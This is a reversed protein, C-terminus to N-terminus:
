YIHQDAVLTLMPLLIRCTHMKTNKKGRRQLLSETACKLGHKYEYYDLLCNKGWRIHRQTAKFQRQCPREWSSDHRVLREWSVWLCCTKPCSKTGLKAFSEHRPFFHTKTLRERRPLSTLAFCTTKSIGQTCLRSSTACKELDELMKINLDTGCFYCTSM